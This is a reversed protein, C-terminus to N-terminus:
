NPQLSINPLESVTQTFAQPTHGGKERFTVGDSSISGAALSSIFIFIAACLSFFTHRVLDKNSCVACAQGVQDGGHGSLHAYRNGHQRGSNARTSPQPKYGYARNAAYPSLEHSRFRAFGRHRGWYSLVPTQYRMQMTVSHRGIVM